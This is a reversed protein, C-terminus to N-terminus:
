GSHALDETHLEPVVGNSDISCAFIDGEGGKGTHGGEVPAVGGVLIHEHIAARNLVLQQKRSNATCIGLCDRM